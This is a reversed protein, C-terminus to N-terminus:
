NKGWLHGRRAVAQCRLLGALLGDKAPFYHRIALGASGEGDIVIKIKCSSNASEFDVPIEHLEIEHHRALVNILNTTV